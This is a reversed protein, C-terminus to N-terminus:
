KREKLLFSLYSKLFVLLLVLHLILSAWFAERTSSLGATALIVISTGAPIALMNVWSRGAAILLAM